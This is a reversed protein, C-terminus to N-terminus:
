RGARRHVVTLADPQGPGARVVAIDGDVDTRFVSAGGTRLRALVSESPHGYGNGAGVSVLAVRPQLSALLASDQYSSGHHAVKLIHVQPMHILAQQETEADGLLLMSVGGLTASLILSNNNADSRTGSLRGTALVRLQVEGVTWAGGSGAEIVPIGAIAAARLVADRGSAPEPFSPLVLTEPRHKLLGDLGGIHDLHYHSLFALPVAEIELDDLCRDVAEPKPGADVVV